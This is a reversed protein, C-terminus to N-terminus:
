IDLYEEDDNQPDRLKKVQKGIYVAVRFWIYAAAIAEIFDVASQYPSILTSPCPITLTGGIYAPLPPNIPTCSGVNLITNPLNILSNVITAVPGFSPVNISTPDIGSTNITSDNISENIETTNNIITENQGVQTELLSDTKSSSLTATTGTNEYAIRGPVASSTNIWQYFLGNSPSRNWGCRVNGGNHFSSLQQSYKFQIHVRWLTPSTSGSTYPGQWTVTYGSITPSYTSDYQSLSDGVVCRLNAETMINRSSTIYSSGNSSSFAFWYDANVNLYQGSVSGLSAYWLPQIGWPSQSTFATGANSIASYLDNYTTASSISGTGPNFYQLTSGDYSYELQVYASAKQSCGFVTFLIAIVLLWRRSM